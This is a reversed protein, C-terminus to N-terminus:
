QRQPQKRIAQDNNRNNIMNEYAQNLQSEKLSTHKSKNKIMDPTTISSDSDLFEYCHGMPTENTINSFCDSFSGSMSIPDYCEIGDTKNQIKQPAVQQQTQQPIQRPIQQPIQQPNQETNQIMNQENAKYNNNFNNVSLSRFWKFVEEGVYTVFSSNNKIIITPVSKVQKPIKINTDEISIKYIKNYLEQNKYLSSLFKQSYICKKSYFLIITNNM